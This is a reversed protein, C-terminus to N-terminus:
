SSCRSSKKAAVKRIRYGNNFPHQILEQIRLTWPTNTSRYFQAEDAMTSDLYVNDRDAWQWITETPREPLARALLEPFWTTKFLAM